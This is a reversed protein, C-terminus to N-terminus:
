VAPVGSSRWRDPAKPFVCRISVRRYGANLENEEYEGHEDCLFVSRTAFRESCFSHLCFNLSFMGIGRARLDACHYDIIEQLGIIKESSELAPRITLCSRRPRPAAVELEYYENLDVHWSRARAIERARSSVRERVRVEIHFPLPKTEVVENGCQLRYCWRETDGKWLTLRVEANASRRRAKGLRYTQNATILDRLGAVVVVRNEEPFDSPTDCCIQGDFDALMGLFAKPERETNWYPPWGSITSPVNAGTNLEGDEELNARSANILLESMCFQVLTPIGWPRFSPPEVSLTVPVIARAIAQVIGKNRWFHLLYDHKAFSFVRNLDLLEAQSEGKVLQHLTEIIGQASRLGHLAFTLKDSCAAVTMEPRYKAEELIADILHLGHLPNGIHHQFASAFKRWRHAELEAEKQQERLAQETHRKELEASYAMLSPSALSHILARMARSARPQHLEQESRNFAAFLVGALCRDVIVPVILLQKWGTARVAFARAPLRQMMDEDIEGLADVIHGVGRMGREHRAWEVSSEHLCRVVREELRCKESGPHNWSQRVRAKLSDDPMCEVLIELVARWDVDRGHQQWFRNVSIGEFYRTLFTGTPVASISRNQLHYPFADAFAEWAVAAAREHIGVVRFPIFGELKEPQELLQCSDDDVAVWDKEFTNSLQQALALVLSKVGTRNVERFIHPQKTLESIQRLQQLLLDYQFRRQGSRARRLMFDLLLTELFAHIAGRLTSASEALGSAKAFGELYSQIQLGGELAMLHPSPPQFRDKTGDYPCIFYEPIGLRQFADRLRAEEHLPGPLPWEVSRRALAVLADYVQSEFEASFM